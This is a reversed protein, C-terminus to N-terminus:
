QLQQQQQKNLPIEQNISCNKSLYSVLCTSVIIHIVIMLILIIKVFINIKVAVIFAMMVVPIAIVETLTKWPTFNKYQEQNLNNSLSIDNLNNFNKIPDFLVHTQVDRVTAVSFVNEDDM